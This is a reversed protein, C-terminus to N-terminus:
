GLSSIFTTFTVTGYLGPVKSNHGSMNVKKEDKKNLNVPHTDHPQHIGIRRNYASSTCKCDVLVKPAPTTATPHYVLIILMLM